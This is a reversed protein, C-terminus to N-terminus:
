SARENSMLISEQHGLMEVVLIKTVAWYEERHQSALVAFLIGNVTKQALSSTIAM